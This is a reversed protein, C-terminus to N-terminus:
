MRTAEIRQPQFLVIEPNMEIVRRRYRPERGVIPPDDGVVARAATRALEEDFIRGAGRSRQRARGCEDWRASLSSRCRPPRHRRYRRRTAQPGVQVGIRSVRARALRRNVDFARAVLIRDDAQAGSRAEAIVGVAEEESVVAIGADAASEDAGPGAGSGALDVERDFVDDLHAQRRGSELDGVAMRTPPM